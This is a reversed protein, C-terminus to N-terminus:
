IRLVKLLFSPLTLSFYIKVCPLEKTELSVWEDALKWKWKEDIIEKRRKKKTIGSNGM